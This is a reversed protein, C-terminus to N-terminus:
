VPTAPAPIRGIVTTGGGVQSHIELTGGLAEMRDVMGQLGTGHSSSPDFGDGDDVVEFAHSEARDQWVAVGAQDEDGVVVKALFM